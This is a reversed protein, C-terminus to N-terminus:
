KSRLMPALSEPQENWLAVRWGQDSTELLCVRGTAVKFSKVQVRKEFEGAVLKLFYRLRGNSSVAMITADHPYNKSLEGVFESVQKTVTEESSAWQCNSPWISRDIWDRLTQEGFKETIDADGLGDWLGYDLETLRNDEILPANSSSKRAIIAAFEKTRKLPAFYIATLTMDKVAEAVRDAQTIGSEVLPLDSKSGVWCVKDEPKFTNGHRALILKM